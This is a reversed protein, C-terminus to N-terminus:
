AYSRSGNSNTLADLVLAEANTLHDLYFTSAIIGLGGDGEKMGSLLLKEKAKSSEFDNLLFFPQM